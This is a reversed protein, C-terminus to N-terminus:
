LVANGRWEGVTFGLGVELSLKEKPVSQAGFGSEGGAKLSAVDIKKPQKKEFEM